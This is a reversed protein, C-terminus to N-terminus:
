PSQLIGIVDLPKILHGSWPAELSATPSWAAAYSRVGAANLAMADEPGDGVGIALSANVGLRTLAELIPQPAPKRPAVDHFAILADYRIGHHSMLNEAYYSVSSTVIAVRTEREQLRALLDSIGSFLVTRGASRVCDRWRRAERLAQIPSTDILTGDLDFLVASRTVM